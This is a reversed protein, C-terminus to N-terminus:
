RRLPRLPGGTRSRRRGSKGEGGSERDGLATVSAPRPKALGSTAGRRRAGWWRPVGGRRPGLGYQRVLKHQMHLMFKDPRNWALVRASSRVGTFEDAVEGNVFLKVAPISAISFAQALDPDEETNVKVLEWRGAAERALEELVPGLTRCPGCWPAWFDVLVPVTRSRVLVQNEFDQLDFSM